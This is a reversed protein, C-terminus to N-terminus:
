FIVRCCNTMDQHNKQGVGMFNWIRYFPSFILGKTRRCARARLSWMIRIASKPWNQGLHAETKRLAFKQRQPCFSAVNLSWDVISPFCKLWFSVGAKVKSGRKPWFCGGPSWFIPWIKKWNKDFPWNFRQAFLDSGLFCFAFIKKKRPAVLAQLEPLIGWLPENAKHILLGMFDRWGHSSLSLNKVKLFLDLVFEHLVQFSNVWSLLYHCIAPHSSGRMISSGGVKSM